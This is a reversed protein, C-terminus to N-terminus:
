ARFAVPQGTATRVEPRDDGAAADACRDARAADAPRPHAALLKRDLPMLKRITWSGPKTAAFRAGVRSVLSDDRGWRYDPITMGRNFCAPSAAVRLRRGARPAGAAASTGPARTFRAGDDLASPTVLGNVYTSLRPASTGCHAAFRRQSLGSLAVLRRIETAVQQRDQREAQVRYYQILADLADAAAPRDGAVLLKYLEVPYPAWPNAAVIAAQARWAKMGGLDVCRVADEVTTLEPGPAEPDVDAVLLWFGTHCCTCGADVATDRDVGSEAVAEVIAESHAVRGAFRSALPMDKGTGLLRDVTSQVAAVARHGHRNVLGDLNVFDAAEVFDVIAIMNAIVAVKMAWADDGILAAAADPFQEWGLLLRTGGEQEVRELLALTTAHELEHDPDSDDSIAARLAALRAVASGM